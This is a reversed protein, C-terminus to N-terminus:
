CPFRTMAVIRLNQSWLLPPPVVPLSDMGIRHLAPVSAVASLRADTDDADATVPVNFLETWWFDLSGPLTPSLRHALGQTEM